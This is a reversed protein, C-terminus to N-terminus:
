YGKGKAGEMIQVGSSTGIRDAGAQLMELCKWFDRVAASAKVMVKGGKYEVAKKMLRVDNVNAGGGNFGTCTKVFVAGAEAAIYCAAVKQADTLLATEIIVKVPYPAAAVITAALDDFVAPYNLSKLHGVPLVTDIERAGNKIATSTEFAKAESAMAGLPFGVVVCTSVGSGSLNDTVRKAWSSNVCCSKFGFRAEDCLGDVQAETADPKLLTHDITQSFGLSTPSTIGPAHNVSAADEQQLATLVEAIKADIADLTPCATPLFSM